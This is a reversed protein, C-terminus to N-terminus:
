ENASSEDPSVISAKASVEKQIGKQEPTNAVQKAATEATKAIKQEQEKAEPTPSLDTVLQNAM